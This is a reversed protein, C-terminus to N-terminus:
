SSKKEEQIAKEWEEKEPGEVAEQYTLMVYDGLRSNLKNRKKYM